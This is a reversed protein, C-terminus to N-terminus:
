LFKSLSVFLYFTVYLWCGKDEGNSVEHTSTLIIIGIRAGRFNEFIKIPMNRSDLEFILKLYSTGCCIGPEFM